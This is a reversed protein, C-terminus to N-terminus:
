FRSNEVVCVERIHSLLSGTYIAMAFHGERYVPILILQPTAYSGRNEEYYLRQYDVSHIDVSSPNRTPHDPPLMAGHHDYLRATYNVEVVIVREGSAKAVLRLVPMIMSTEVEADEPHLLYHAIIRRMFTDISDRIDNAQGELLAVNRLQTWDVPRRDEAVVADLQQWLDQENESARAADDTQLAVPSTAYVISNSLPNAGSDSYFLLTVHWFSIVPQPIWHLSFHFM